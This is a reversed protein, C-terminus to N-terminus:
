KKAKDDGFLAKYWFASKNKQLNIKNEETLFPRLQKMDINYRKLFCLLDYLDQESLEEDQLDLYLFNRAGEFSKICDIRNIWDFFIGEDTLGYYKVSTCTLYKKPEETTQEM